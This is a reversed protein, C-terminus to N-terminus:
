ELPIDAGAIFPDSRSWFHARYTSSLDANCLDLDLSCKGVMEGEMHPWIWHWALLRHDDGEGSVSEKLTWRKYVDSDGTHGALQGVDQHDQGSPCVSLEKAAEAAKTPTRYSMTSSEHLHNSVLIRGSAALAM